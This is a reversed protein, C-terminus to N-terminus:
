IPTKHICILARVLMEGHDFALEEDSLASVAIQGGSYAYGLKIVCSSGTLIVTNDTLSVGFWEAQRADDGARAEPKTGLRSVFCQSVVWGRKDRGPKSFLGVPIIPADKVGTEEFLERQATQEISEREEAFGGPLAWQGICPHGGRKILLLQLDDQMDALLVVDATLSPGPYGERSYSSLFEQETLGNKDRKPM